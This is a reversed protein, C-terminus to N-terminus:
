FDFADLVTNRIQDIIKRMETAPKTAQGAAVEAQGKNCIGDDTLAFWGDWADCIACFNKQVGTYICGKITQLECGGAVSMYGEQCRWCTKDGDKTVGGWLCNNEVGSQGSFPECGQFDKSPFGGVCIACVPTSNATFAVQCTPIGTQPTCPLQKTNADIAYGKQCWDCGDIHYTYIDCKDTTSPTDACEQTNKLPRQYCNFCHNQACTMCGPSCSGAFTAGIICSIAILTISVRTM